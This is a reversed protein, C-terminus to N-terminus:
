LAISGIISSTSVTSTVNVQDGSMSWSHPVVIVLQQHSVLATVPEAWGAGGGPFAGYSNIWGGGASLVVAFWGSSNAICDSLSPVWSGCTPTGLPLRQGSSTTLNWSTMWNALGWGDYFYPATQNHQIFGIQFPISIRVTVGASTTNASAPLWAYSGWGAFYSHSLYACNNTENGYGGNTGNLNEAWEILPQINSVGVLGCRGLIVGAFGGLDGYGDFVGPGTTYIEAWPSSPYFWSMGGIKALAPQAINPSNTLFPALQQVWIEPNRGLDYWPHCPGNVSMPPYTHVSGLVNTAVLIQQSVNSYYAFQWYPATGSDLSGNFVPMTGNWLTLGNFQAQCANVTQNGLPYGVVNASYPAQAAVGYISFLGWPGGTVNRISQNVGAIAQYLTPGDDKPSSITPGGGRDSFWWLALGIAAVVLAFAFLISLYHARM